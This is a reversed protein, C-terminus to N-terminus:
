RWVIERAWRPTAVLADIRCLSCRLLRYITWLKKM